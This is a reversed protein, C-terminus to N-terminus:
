SVEFLGGLEAVICLAEWGSRLLAHSVRTDEAITKAEDLREQMERDEAVPDKIIEHWGVADRVVGLITQGATQVLEDSLVPNAGINVLGHGAEVSGQAPTLVM